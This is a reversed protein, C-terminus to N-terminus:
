EEKNLKVAIEVWFPLDLLGGVEVMLLSIWFSKEKAAAAGTTRERQVGIEVM